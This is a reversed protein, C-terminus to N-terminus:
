WVGCTAAAKGDLKWSQVMMPCDTYQRHSPFIDRYWIIGACIHRGGLKFIFFVSLSISISFFWSSSKSKQCM